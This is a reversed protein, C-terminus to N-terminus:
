PLKEGDITDTLSVLWEMIIAWVTFLVVNEGLLVIPNSFLVELTGQTEFLISFFFFIDRRVM